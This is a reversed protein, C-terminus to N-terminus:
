CRRRRSRAAICTPGSRASALAALDYEPEPGTLIRNIDAPEDLKLPAAAARVASSFTRWQRL